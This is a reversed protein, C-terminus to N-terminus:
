VALLMVGLLLSLQTTITPSSSVVEGNSSIGYAAVLPVQIGFFTVYHESSERDNWGM